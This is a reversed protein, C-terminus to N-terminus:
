ARVSDTIHLDTDGTGDRGAYVTVEAYYYYGSHGTYTVSSSTSIKGYTIMGPTTSSYFTKRPTWTNGDSSEYVVIEEAGVENVRSKGTVDFRIRVTGSSVKSISAGSAIIYDSSYVAASALPSICMVLALVLAVTSVIKSKM